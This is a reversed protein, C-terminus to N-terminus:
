LLIPVCDAYKVSVIRAADDTIIADAKVGSEFPAGARAVCVANGHVQRIWCRQRDQAALVTLLRRYNERINELADQESGDGAGITGLNLSAFPGDSVGGGRTSFAHVAGTAEVLPSVYIVIGSDTRRRQLSM